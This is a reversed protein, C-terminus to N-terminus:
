EKKFNPNPTMMKAHNRLRWDNLIKTLEKVKQPNSEALDTTESIDKELDYLEQKGTEFNDILKYKGTRVASGPDGGQNSYHPYHWFLPRKSQKGNKLLPLLNIGDFQKKDASIGACALLTPYLDVSSVPTNNEVNTEKLEPIRIIFPV